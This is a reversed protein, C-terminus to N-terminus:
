HHRFTVRLSRRELVSLNCIADDAASAIEPTPLSGARARLSSKSSPALMAACTSTFSSPTAATSYESSSALRLGDEAVNCVVVDPISCRFSAASLNTRTEAQMLEWCSPFVPGVSVRDVEEIICSRSPLTGFHQLRGQRERRRFRLVIQVSPFVPFVLGVTNWFCGTGRRSTVYIQKM